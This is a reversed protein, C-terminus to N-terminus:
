QNNGKKLKILYNIKDKALKNDPDLRLEEKLTQISEDYRKLKFFSEDLGQYAELFKDDIKIAQKYLEVAEETHNQYLLINGANTIMAAYTEAIQKQAPNDFDIFTSNLRELSPIKLETFKISSENPYLKFTLGTAAKSYQNGFEPSMLTYVSTNQKMFHDIISDTLAITEPVHTQPNPKIQIGQKYYTALYKALPKQFASVFQPYERKIYDQYWKYHLQQPDIVILDPRVKEVHKLYYFPSIFQWDSVLLLSNQDLNSLTDLVYDKSLYFNSKNSYKYNTALQTILFLATIVLISTTFKLNRIGFKGLLRNITIGISIAIILFVPLFYADKEYANSLPLMLPIAISFIVILSLFILLALNKRLFWITILLIAPTILTFQQLLLKILGALEKYLSEPFLIYSSSYQRGSIHYILRSINTTDGWNLTPNKAAALPLYAYTLTGLATIVCLILVRKDTLFRARSILLVLFAIAPLIAVNTTPHVGMSLGFFFGATYLLKFSTKKIHHGSIAQKEIALKRCWKLVLYITLCLLFTNLTYVEALEAWYWLDRSFGFFLASALAPFTYILASKTSPVDPLKNTSKTDLLRLFELTLLFVTITTLTAFLASMFNIRFVFSGIPIYSFLIGLITYLPAGPPHAVGKSYIALLLEGSDTTAVTPTLTALYVFLSLFFLSVLVIKNISITAFNKIGPPM